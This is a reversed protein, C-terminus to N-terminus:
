AMDSKSREIDCKVMKGAVIFAFVLWRADIKVSPFCRCDCTSKEDYPQETMVVGNDYKFTLFESGQYGAPIIEVPGRRDMGIAWQAIDFM